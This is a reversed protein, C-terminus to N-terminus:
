EYRLAVMPDIRTARRAPIYTALAAVLTLALLSIGVSSFGFAQVDYLMSNILKGLVYALPIGIFIGIGTLRAVDLLIMWGVRKPEAGLAMRVGIERTRQTVTYALLGYIGMAALLAALSGFILALLAVLRSSSLQLEIQEDFSRVDYIPLSADLEGISQRVSSALAVPDGATRVYYTLSTVGKEQPYPVYVFAKPKENISSHHSDQVVGVIEKDLPDSGGGFKMHRGIADGNPFFEKAMTANIIVVKPSDPGDQRTFERGRILPIHLNSFHGPGVANRLADRTGALETPEGEVTVNSDRDDDAILPEQVGSLSQVGPLAGVRDELRQYLALSRPEDYGNLQPAVSFQLVHAPQLGLDVNKLNYLSRVFGCAGTVLLLTLAVQSIVLVQRLRAHSHASLVAGGQEKLTYALQVRTANLAPVVGFFIGAILALAATFVLVPADLAGSLGDAIQNTSAFHVLANSMWSALALGLVAGLTSLLCSEIVLQRILRWRSAGLSLRVSIEKQRAAGRATLLGAVNACTIFLVLGVMGMLALLQPRTGNELLPRGRAGERLVLKKAVFAAKKKEDMRSNFALDDELLAHYAPAMAIAAQDLSIGPKLRAILKIWYDKHDALGSWGPTIVPKMTIPLYVDPIMGLQIGGFGPQVVGVVTMLQNNVLLLQNLIGPDGGFRKKWYGYGLVVVPNAGVTTTDDPILVRGVAPQVGLTSFYNGSVLEANARETAGRFSASIPFNAKAAIGAFVTNHDRLYTYMPYTFSETGDPGEDSSVHGSRPGPAYLLVLEEPHPVPLRQLLVQRLVSFIGSNAGIGLALTLVAIATFGSNKYLLRIGFRIDQLLTELWPLRRHDNVSEQTHETM